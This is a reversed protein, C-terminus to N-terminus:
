LRPFLFFDCPAFDPSYSPNPIEVVKEQKLYKLCTAQLRHKFHKKLEHGKGKYFKANVSRCKPGATQFGPGPNTFFIIHDKQREHHMKSHSTKSKRQKGM